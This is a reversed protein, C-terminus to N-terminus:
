FSEQWPVPQTLTRPLIHTSLARRQRQPPGVVGGQRRLLKGKRACRNGGLTSWEMRGWGGNVELRPWRLRSTPATVLEVETVLM